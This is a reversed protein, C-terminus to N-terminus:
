TGNIPELKIRTVSSTAVFFIRKAYLTTFLEQNDELQCVSYLLGFTPHNLYNEANEDVDVRSHSIEEAFQLFNPKQLVAVTSSTEVKM